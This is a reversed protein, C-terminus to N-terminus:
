GLSRAGRTARAPHPSAHKPRGSFVLPRLHRHRRPVRHATFPLGKPTRIGKRNLIRAIEDDSFERALTRLLDFLKEPV